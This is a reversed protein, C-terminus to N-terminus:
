NEGQDSEGCPDKYGYIKYFYVPVTMVGDSTQYEYYPDDDDPETWALFSTADTRINAPNESRYIRFESTQYIGGDEWRFIGESGYGDVGDKIVGLEPTGGYSWFYINDTIGYGLKVDDIVWSSAGAASGSAARFRVKMQTTSGTLYDDLRAEYYGGAVSGQFAPQIGGPTGSQCNGEISSPVEAEFAPYPLLVVKVWAGADNTFVELVGADDSSLNCSSWFRLKVDEQWILNSATTMEISSTWDTAANMDCVWAATGDKGAGPTVSWMGTGGNCAETFGNSADFDNNLLLTCTPACSSLDATAASDAYLITRGCGNVAVIRYIYAGRDVPKYTFSATSSGGSKIINTFGDRSFYLRYRRNAANTGGDGWDVVADWTVTVGTAANCDEAATTQAPAAVPSMGVYDAGSLSTGGDTWCSNMNNARVSYTYYTDTLPPNDTISTVGDAVPSGPIEAGNRYIHYYRTSPGSGGDNWGAEGDGEVDIWSITLTSDSCGDTDQVVQVGAFAPASQADAISASDAYSSTMGCGNVAVIRYSYSNSNGPLYTLPSSVGSMVPVSYNDSRYLDYRASGEGNDNWSVVPNWSVMIGTLSCDIDSVSVAIDGPLAPIAGVNDAVSASASYNTFDGCGNTARMRYQLSVGNEADHIYPSTAPTAIPTTYGDASGYLAYSRTGEGNDGWDSPAAWSINLGEGTCGSIDTATTASSSLTPESHVHDTGEITNGLETCTDLNNCAEVNYDYAVNNNATSDTWSTAATDTVTHIVSGDRSIEYRRTTCGSSCSDNWNSVATWNVQVGEDACAGGVDVVSQIGAFEPPSAIYNQSTGTDTLPNDVNTNYTSGQNAANSPLMFYYYNHWANETTETPNEIRFGASGRSGTGSDTYLNIRSDPSVLKAKNRLVKIYSGLSSSVQYWTWLPTAAITDATGDITATEGNSDYFTMNVSSVHNMRVFWYNTHSSGGHWKDNEYEHWYSKYYYHHTAPWMGVGNSAAWCTPMWVYYRLVRVRGDKAYWPISWSDCNTGGTITGQTRIATENSTCDISFGGNWSQLSTQVMDTGTGGGTTTVSLADIRVANADTNNYDVIYNSASVTNNTENWSVYDDTRWTPLTDHRFIYVWGKKSTDLPDAVVIEYRPSTTVAEPAWEDASVRDGTEDSMFIIEDNADWLGDDAEMHNPGLGIHSGQPSCIPPPAQPYANNIEDIQFVVQRWGTGEDYAWVFIQNPSLTADAPNVQLNLSTFNPTQAGTVIIAEAPRDLTKTDIVAANSGTGAALIVTMAAYFILKKIEDYFMGCREKKEAKRFCFM